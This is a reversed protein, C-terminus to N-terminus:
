PTAGTTTYLTDLAFSNSGDAPLTIGGPKVLARDCKRAMFRGVIREQKVICLVVQQQSLSRNDGVVVFTKKGLRGEKVNWDCPGSIYPEVLQLNNVFFTGNRVAVTEGPLGIIRKQYLEHGVRVGVIEGRRPFRFRYSLREMIAIQGDRYTPSMSIGNIVVLTVIWKRIAAAVAGLVVLLVLAM